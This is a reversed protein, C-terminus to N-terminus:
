AEPAVIVSQVALRQEDDDATADDHLRGRVDKGMQTM